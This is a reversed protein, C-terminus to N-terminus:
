LRVQSSLHAKVATVQFLEHSVHTTEVVDEREKEPKKLVKIPHTCAYKHLHAHM